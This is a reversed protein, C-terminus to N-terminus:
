IFCYFTQQNTSTDSPILLFGETSSNTFHLMEQWILLCPHWLWWPNWDMFHSNVLGPLVIGAIQCGDLLWWSSSGSGITTLLFSLIHFILDCSAPGLSSLHMHFFYCGYTWVRGMCVSVSFKVQFIQDDEILM